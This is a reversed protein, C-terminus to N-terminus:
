SIVKNSNPILLKGAPMLQLMKYIFTDSPVSLNCDRLPCKILQGMEKAMHLRIVKAMTTKLGSTPDIVDITGYAVNQTNAPSQTFEIIASIVEKDINWKFNQRKAVPALAYDFEHYHLKSEHWRYKTLKPNWRDLILDTSLNPEKFDNEDDDDDEEESAIPNAAPSLNFKDLTAFSYHNVLLSLVSIRAASSGVKNWSKICEAVLASPKAESTLYKEVCKSDKVLQWLNADDKKVNSVTHIVSAIGAGILAKVQRQRRESVTNFPSELVSNCSLHLQNLRILENLSSIKKQDRLEELDSFNSHASGSPSPDEELDLSQVSTPTKFQDLDLGDMLMKVGTSCNRCVKSELPIFVNHKDLLARCELNSILRLSKVKRTKSTHNPYRCTNHHNIVYKTGLCIKHKDCILVGVKDLHELLCRNLITKREIEELADFIHFNGNCITTSLPNKYKQLLEFFYCSQLYYIM